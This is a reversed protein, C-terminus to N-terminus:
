VVSKRDAKYADDIEQALQGAVDEFHVDHEVRGAWVHGTPRKRTNRYWTGEPGKVSRVYIDDGVRVAWIPIRPSLSGDRRRSSIELEQAEAIADLEQETWKAM